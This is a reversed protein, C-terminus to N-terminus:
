RGDPCRDIQNLREVIADLAARQERPSRDSHNLLLAFVLPAFQPPDLYGALAVVGALTGTKARLDLSALRWRLTGTEGGAALSQRYLPAYPATTVGRLTQVLAEPSVLNQRSLGSGDVLAYGDPDVGLIKLRDRRVSISGADPVARGLQRLLVEAVLNNSDRNAQVVLEGLPPSVIVALETGREPPRSRALATREVVIGVAALERLFVDRLYAHPHPVALEWVDPGNDAPISGVIELQTTGLQPRLELAYPTGAAATVGRNTVQWQQGAIADDWSWSPPQGVAQPVVTFTVANEHLITGNAATGYAAIIDDKEWSPVVDPEVFASDEVVLTRVRVIGRDRVQRALVQLGERSLTPDGGGVLRLETAVPSAETGYVSTRARWGPGFHQLAAATTLLKATSAPIFFRESERAYLTRGSAMERILIGWRARQWDPHEVVRAIAAPLEAPCLARAPTAQMGTLGCALVTTLAPM